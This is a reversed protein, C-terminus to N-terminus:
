CRNCCGPEVVLDLELSQRGASLHASILLGHKAQSPVVLVAQVTVVHVDFILINNLGEPPQGKLELCTFVIWTLIVNTDFKINLYSYGSKIYLQALIIEKVM